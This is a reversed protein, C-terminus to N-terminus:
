FVIDYVRIGEPVNTTDLEINYHEYERASQEVTKQVTILKELKHTHARGICIGAPEEKNFHEFVILRRVAMYPRASTQDITFMKELSEWYVQLDRETFNAERVRMPNFTGYARYLAYPIIWRSGFTGHESDGEVKAPTELTDANKKTGKQKPPVTQVCRSITMDQIEVPDISNALGMQMPGTIDGCDFETGPM